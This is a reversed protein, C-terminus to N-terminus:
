ICHVTVTHVIRKVSIECDLVSLMAVAVFSCLNVHSAHIKFFQLIDTAEKRCWCKRQHIQKLFDYQRM